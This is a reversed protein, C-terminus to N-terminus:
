FFINLLDVFVLANQFFLKTKLYIKCLKENGIVVHVKILVSFKDSCEKLIKCLFYSQCEEAEM